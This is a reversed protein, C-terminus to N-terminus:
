YLQKTHFPIVEASKIEIEESDGEFADRFKIMQKTLENMLVVNTQNPNNCRSIVLNIHSQQAWLREKMADSASAIMEECMEQRFQEFATPNESALAMMEDFSPLTQVLHPHSESHKATQSAM